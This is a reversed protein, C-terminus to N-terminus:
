SRIHVIELLKSLFEFIRQAREIIWSVLGRIKHLAHKPITPTIADIM